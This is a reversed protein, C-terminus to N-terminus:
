QGITQDVLHAFPHSPLVAFPVQPSIREDRVTDCLQVGLSSTNVEVEGDIGLNTTPQEQHIISSYRLM